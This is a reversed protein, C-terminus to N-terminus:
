QEKKKERERYEPRYPDLWVNEFYIEQRQKAGKGFNGFHM